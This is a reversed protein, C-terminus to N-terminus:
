DAATEWYSIGHGTESSYIFLLDSNQVFNFSQRMNRKGKEEIEIYDLKCKGEIPWGRDM